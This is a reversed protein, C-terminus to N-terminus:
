FRYAVGIRFQNESNEFTDTGAGYEVEYQKYSTHSYELRLSVAESAPVEIGGGFRLGIQGDRSDVTSGGETYETEFGTRVVGARGYLLASDDLVYGAIVSGGFSHHKDVSYVRGNPDREIDWSADSLEADIEGALYIDGFRVGYGGFVGAAGGHGARDAVLASAAERPGTNDTVLGIHGLQAGAYFGSFPNREADVEADAADEATMGFRYGIGLLTVNETNSFNDVGAGGLGAQIDYDQYATYSHELRVFLGNWAPVEVGGGFRIGTEFEERTTTEGSPVTYNTEFQTGVVGFRGYVLNDEPLYYGLLGSAGFSTQKDVTFVRGGPLRAHFWGTDSIEGDLEAGLYWNEFRSGYGAFLGGTWGTDGFDATLSGGGGRAGELGTNLEGPGFQVGGYFGGLDPGAGAGSRYAAMDEDTYQPSWQAGLRLFILNEDYDEGVAESERRRYSYDTGVWFQPSLFYAAGMGVDFIQDRRQIGVYDNITYFASAEASLDPALRHEVIAGYTTSLYSSAGVATTESVIRDVIGTVTTRLTPYLTLRAGFDAAHVDELAPDDYNQHLYGLLLELQSNDELGFVMGGAIGFGGSDRVFGADDVAADYRRLDAAGQFFAERGEAVLYGLRTGVEFLERDRDDNNITGTTSGVDDFDLHRYTGALRASTEDMRVFGGAFGYVEEYITPETGDVGDPSERPEHDHTFRAGAFLNADPSFDFRGDTGIRWDDYDESGRDRYRGIDASGYLNLRHETWDSEIRLSPSIVTVFDDVKDNRTAFVNDSYLESITLRPDIVFSGIRLESDAAPPDTDATQPDAETPAASPGADQVLEDRAEEAQATMASLGASVGLLLGAVPRPARM